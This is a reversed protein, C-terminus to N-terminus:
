PRFNFSLIVIAKNYHELATKFDNAKFRENGKEKWYMGTSESYVVKENM